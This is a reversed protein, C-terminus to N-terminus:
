LAMKAVSVKTSPIDLLACVSKIIKECIVPNEGGECIVLVGRIKEEGIKLIIPMDGNEGESLVLDSENETSNDEKSYVTDKEYFLEKSNEITVMVVTKGAGNIKSIMGSLKEELEQERKSYDFFSLYDYKNKNEFSGATFESFVIMIIGIIGIILIFASKKNKESFISKIKEFFDYKKNEM